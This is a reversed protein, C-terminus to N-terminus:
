SARKWEELIKREERSLKEPIEVIITVYHDGIGKSQLVPMWKGKLRLVQNPQTGAPIKLGVAGHVTDM